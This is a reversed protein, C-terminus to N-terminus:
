IRDRAWAVFKALGEALPTFRGIGLQGRLQTTDAYIGNQDGPTSGRLFYTSGEVSACVQKVLEGVSTRVGTAVNLTKGLVAPRTAARWWAEVVDDIYVFDRFRELSGKIEIRGTAIAQALYISVMGQRLNKMDQGPGYVNFMRLSVSPVQRQYVRLYNESALKGVGYCSLPACPHDEAVPGDETAGYVSMSSAYVLRETSNDIAYRILNLTSVTNKQLDAVPDDFSIEGSSQGALHLITRCNAPIRAITAPQALDGEIFEIEKPINARAGGSLDDVGIVHDGQQAFRRAVHSAIFGAVGTILVAAM